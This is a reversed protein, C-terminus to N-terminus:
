PTKISAHLDITKIINGEHDVFTGTGNTEEVCPATKTIVDHVYYSIILKAREEWDTNILRPIIKVEGLKQSSMGAQDQLSYRIGDPICYESLYQQLIGHSNKGYCEFGVYMEYLVQYTATYSDEFPDYELDSSLLWGSPMKTSEIDVTVYTLEPRPGKQRKKIVAPVQTTSGQVTYTALQSGVSDRVSSILAPYIVNQYDIAM